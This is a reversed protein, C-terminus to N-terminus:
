LIVCCRNARQTFEMDDQKLETNLKYKEFFPQKEAPIKPVYANFGILQEELDMVSMRRDVNKKSTDPKFPAEMKESLLAEFDFGHFFPHSTVEEVGHYGLRKKYDLDLLRTILDVCEPSVGKETALLNLALDLESHDKHLNRGSVFPKEGMVFQYLTSGFAFWDAAYISSVDSVSIAGRYVEPPIYGDTGCVEHRDFSSVKASLGFDTIMVYGNSRMLTNAPKIDRQVIGHQHLYGIGLALSAATFRVLDPSFRGLANLQYKLDGGLALDMVLYLNDADQFACHANCLMLHNVQSLIELETFVQTVGSELEFCRAKNLTKMAFLRGTKLETVCNVKGFGGKGVSTEIRFHSVDKQEPNVRGM